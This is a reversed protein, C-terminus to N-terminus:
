SPNWSRTAPKTSADATRGSRITSSPQLPMAPGIIAGTRSRSGTCTEAYLKSGSPWKGICSGFGSSSSFRRKTM